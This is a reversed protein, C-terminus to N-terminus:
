RSRFQGEESSQGDASHNEYVRGFVDYMFDFSGKPAKMANEAFKVMLSIKRVVEEGSWNFVAPDFITHTMVLFIEMLGLPDDAELIKQAIGEELLSALVPAYKEVMKSNMRSHMDINKINYIGPFLKFNLELEKVSAMKMREFLPLTKDEVIIRVNAVVEDIYRDIIADVIEDKSKFYYYFIGKSLNLAKVIGDVTTETFGKELFLRQSADIIEDRREIPNKSIRTMQFRWTLEVICCSQGDTLINAFFSEM